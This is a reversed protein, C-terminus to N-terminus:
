ALFFPLKSALGYRVYDSPSHIIGGGGEEKPTRMADPRRRVGEQTNGDRLRGRGRRKM